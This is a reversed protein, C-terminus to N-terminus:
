QTRLWNEVRLGEVRGFERENDTVVIYGLALAQAAILQDLAGIPRGARELNTRVVAYSRDAPTGFPLIQLKGLVAEVQSILRVSGKKEAGYRVESAVIASTVVRAEGVKRVHEAIIGNPNRVLDSVANSDLLYKTM